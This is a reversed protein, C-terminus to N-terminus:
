SSGVTSPEEVRPSPTHLKIPLVLRFCTNETDNRLTLKGGHEQAIARSLSLGVGMGLGFEKTTFFPEMLHPKFRDEIGPGSDTVDILIEDEDHEVKFSIWRETSNAHVISDFANNLLNTIIQGIQTERCLFDRIGAGLDLQMEINHRGFRAHQLEICQDVIEYISALQM